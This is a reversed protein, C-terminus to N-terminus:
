RLGLVNYIEVPKERGKVRVAQRKELRFAGDLCKKVAESIIIEDPGAIGELRAAINVTDGIVSYDMRRLSGLNGAVLPGTNIGIGVKLSAADKRFFRRRSSQITKQIALACSVANAADEESEPLPVGWVAMICDGIFKDIYGRNEIVREVAESFYGNLIDIIEEPERGESFRTYGRIDAFFVTANRRGGGLKLDDPFEILNSVVEASMYRCFMDKIVRREESVEQVKTGLERERTQNTFLLTLGENRGRPTRLPTINLSYDMEGKGSRYTGELGLIEEGTEFGAAITKLTKPSLRQRFSSVLDKGIDTEELGLAEAAARNFYHIQGESDAAVIINTMSNFVNEQYRELAEIKKLYEKMETFLRSTQMVGGAIKAYADLFNFCDRTVFGKATSNVFLIGMDCSPGTIPLAMGSKMEPILLVQRLFPFAKGGGLNNFILAERCERLFGAIESTGAIIGPLRYRGRRYMLRLDSEPEESDRYAYFAALDSRSIDQAQEVLISILSNFNQERSLRTGARVLESGLSATGAENM